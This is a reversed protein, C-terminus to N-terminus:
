HGYYLLLIYIYINNFVIINNIKMREFSENGENGIRHRNNRELFNKGNGFTIGFTIGSIKPM